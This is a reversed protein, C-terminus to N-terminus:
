GICRGIKIHLVWPPAIVSQVFCIGVSVIGVPEKVRLVVSLAPVAITWSHSEVLTREQRDFPCILVAATNVALEHAVHDHLVHAAVTISIGGNQNSITGGGVGNGIVGITGNGSIAITVQGEAHVLVPCVVSGASGSLPVHTQVNSVSLLLATQVSASGGSDEGSLVVVTVSVSILASLFAVVIRIPSRGGPPIKGDQGRVLFVTTEVLAVGLVDLALSPARVISSELDKFIVLNSAVLLISGVDPLGAFRPSNRSGIANLSGPASVVM